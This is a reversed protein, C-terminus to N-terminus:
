RLASWCSHFRVCVNVQTSPEPSLLSTCIKVSRQKVCMQCTVCNPPTRATEGYSAEVAICAALQRGSCIAVALLGYLAVCDDFCLAQM